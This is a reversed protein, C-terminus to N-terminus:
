DGAYNSFIKLWFEKERRSKQIAHMVLDPVRVPDLNFKSVIESFKKTRVSSSTRLSLLKAYGETEKRSVNFWDMHYKLATSFRRLKKRLDSTSLGIDRMVQLVTQCRIRTRFKESANKTVHHLISTLVVFQM